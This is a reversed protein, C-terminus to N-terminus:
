SKVILVINSRDGIKDTPKAKNLHGPFTSWTRHAAIAAARSRKRSQSASYPSQHTAGGNVSSLIKLRDGPETYIIEVRVLGYTSQKM